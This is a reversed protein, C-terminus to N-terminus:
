NNSQPVSPHPMLVIVVFAVYFVALVSAGAFTTLVPDRSVLAVASTTLLLAILRAADWAFQAIARGQLALLQGLPGAVVQVAIGAALAGLYGKVDEWGEGLFIRLWEEPVAVLAIGFVAGFPLLRAIWSRVASNIPQGERILGGFSNAAVPVLAAVLLGAPAVALRQAVSLEGTAHEGFFFGTILPLLSVASVNIIASATLALGRRLILLRERFRIHDRAPSPRARRYSISQIASAGVYAVAWGIPIGYTTQSAAGLLVQTGGQLIGQGGKALAIGQFAGVRANLQMTLGVAGIAVTTVALLAGEVVDFGAFMTMGAGVIVGVCALVVLALRAMWHLAAAAATPILLELRVTGATAAITAVALFVAAAGMEETSFQRTLIPTVALVFAQGVILGYIIQASPKRFFARM